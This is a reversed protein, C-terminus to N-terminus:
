LVATRMKGGKKQKEHAVGDITSRLVFGGGFANERGAETTERRTEEAAISAGGATESWTVDRCHISCVSRM